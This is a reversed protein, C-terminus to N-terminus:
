SKTLKITTSGHIVESYPFFELKYHISCDNQIYWRQRKDRKSGHCFLKLLGSAYESSQWVDLISTKAFIIMPDFENNKKNFM